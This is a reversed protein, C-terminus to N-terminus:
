EAKHGGVQGNREITTAGEQLNMGKLLANKGYRSQINLTARQLRRERAEAASEEERVKQAATYDVFLSLQEPVEPPVDCERILNCATVNLRRILLDPDAVRTFLEM